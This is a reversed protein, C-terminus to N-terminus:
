KGHLRAEAADAPAQRMLLEALARRQAPELIDRERLLQEIVAQQQRAQLRAIAARRAEILSRDPRDSFIEGIMTERHARIQQWDADLERLFGRELAHWQRRQEPSLKLYDPLNEGVAEGGFIGPFQGTEAYRYAVAGITGLNLLLSLALVFRMGPRKM